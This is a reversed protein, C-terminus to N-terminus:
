KEIAIHLKVDVNGKIMDYVPCPSKEAIRQISDIDIQAVNEGRLKFFLEITHFSFPAKEKRYGEANAEWSTINKGMKRLLLLFLSSYCSTLSMLLLELSTIGANDGLPPIYDIPVPEVFDTRAEFKLRDNVLNLSVNMQKSKDIKANM